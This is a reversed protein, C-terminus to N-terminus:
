QAGMCNYLCGMDLGLVYNVNHMLYIDKLGQSLTKFTFSHLFLNDILSDSINKKRQM